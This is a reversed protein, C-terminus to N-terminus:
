KSILNLRLQKLENSVSADIRENGVSVTFGGILEPNVSTSLEMSGGNLHSAIIGRLREEESQALPAASVIKVDYINNKRRYLAIFANAIGRAMDLRRNRVLLKLFDCFLTNDDDSDSIGAAAKLLSTKDEASVYPNALVPLLQPQSRFSEELVKMTMYLKKDAKKECAVLYLAKAYRAPILGDNM